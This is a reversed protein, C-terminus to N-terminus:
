DTTIYGSPTCHTYMNVPINSVVGNKLTATLTAKGGSSSAVNTTTLKHNNYTWGSALTKSYTANSVGATIGNYTFSTTLTITAVWSGELEYSNKNVVTKSSDRAASIIEVTSIVVLGNGLDKVTTTIESSEAAYANTTLILSFMFILTITISSFRKSIKM